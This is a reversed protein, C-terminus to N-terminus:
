SSVTPLQRELQDNARGRLHRRRRSWKRAGLSNIIQIRLRVQASAACLQESVFENTRLSIPRIAGSVNYLEVSELEIRGALLATCLQGVLVIVVVVLKSEILAARSSARLLTRM